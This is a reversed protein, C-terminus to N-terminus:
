LLKPWNGDGTDRSDCSNVYPRAIATYCLSQCFSMGLVLSLHAPKFLYDVYYRIRGLTLNFNDNPRMHWLMVLFQITCLMEIIWLWLVCVCVCVCVCMCVCMCAHVCAHACVCSRVCARVCVYVRVSVCLCVCVCVCLCVCVCVCVCVCMCVCVCVCM